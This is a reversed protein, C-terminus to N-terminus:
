KFTCYPKQICRGYVINIAEDHWLAQVHVDTGSINRELYPCSNAVENNLHVM